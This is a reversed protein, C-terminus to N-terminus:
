QQNSSLNIYVGGTKHNTSAIMPKKCLIYNCKDIGDLSPSIYAGSVLWRKLGSVLKFSMTGLGHNQKSEIGHNTGKKWILVIGGQHSSWAVNATTSNSSPGTKTDWISEPIHSPPQHTTM